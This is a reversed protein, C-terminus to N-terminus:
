AHPGRLNRLEELLQCVYMMAECKKEAVKLRDRLDAEHVRHSDISRAHAEEIDKISESLAANKAEAANLAEHVGPDVRCQELDEIRRTLVQREKKLDMIRANKIATAM